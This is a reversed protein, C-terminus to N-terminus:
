RWLISKRDKQIKRKGTGKGKGKRRKVQRRKFPRSQWPYENGDWFCSREDDIYGQESTVEDTAWQGFDDEACAEVIFTRHM